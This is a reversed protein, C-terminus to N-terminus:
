KRKRARVVRSAVRLDAQVEEDNYQANVAAMQALLENFRKLLGAEDPQIFKLNQNDPMLM